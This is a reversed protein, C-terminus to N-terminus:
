RPFYVICLHYEGPVDAGFEVVGGRCGQHDLLVAVVEADPAPGTSECPVPRPEPLRLLCDGISWSGGTFPPGDRLVEIPEDRSSTDAFATFVFVAAVIVLLLYPTYRILELVPGGGPVIEVMDEDVTGDGAAPIRDSATMVEDSRERRDGGAPGSGSRRASLELERDYRRRAAPDGLVRWAENVARMAVGARARDTAPRAGLRDPHLRRARDLYAAHIVSCDADTSVGLVAYHTRAAAM